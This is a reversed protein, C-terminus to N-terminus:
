TSVQSTQPAPKNGPRAALGFTHLIKATTLIGLLHHINLRSVVPLIPHGSALLELSHDLGEDPFVLLDSDWDTWRSLPEGGHGEAMAKSLKERQALGIFQEEALVPYATEERGEFHHLAQEVSEEATLCIFDSDIADANRLRRLVFENKRSPLIVGDQRALSEYLGEPQLRAAIAYAIINAVMLPLILNYDQTVEFIMFISTIPTRNIGAFMTGMGVLAYAGIGSLRSFPFAFHAIGGVSGGLMAGIYLSPAFVGGSNGTAYCVATSLFKLIALWILVHLMMRNNLADDVWRYGVSLIQPYALAVLGCFISGSVPIWYRVQKPSRLMHERGWKIGLSFAASAAGGIAGLIVFAILDSLGGLKYAPVSFLPAGGIFWRRVLVAVVAALITSGLLPSNFGTIEELVFLVATIPANFIGALGAAAGVPVLQQMKTKSSATLRGVLSAVGAGIHIAPGEPGMSQGSGIGIASALFKGLTSRVPIFGDRALIAIKTQAVGSGRSQPMLRLVLAAAVGGAATYMAYHWPASHHSSLDGYLWTFISELFIHYLVVMFGALGGTALVLVFFTRDEDLRLKRLLRLIKVQTPKPRAM